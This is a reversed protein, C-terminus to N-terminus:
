GKWYLSIEVQNWKSWKELFYKRRELWIFITTRWFLLQLQYRPPLMNHHTDHHPPWSLPAINWPSHGSSRLWHETTLIWGLGAECCEPRRCVKVESMSQVQLKCSYMLLSMMKHNLINSSIFDDSHFHHKRSGM